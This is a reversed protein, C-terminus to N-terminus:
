IVRFAFFKEYAVGQRLLSSATRNLVAWLEVRDGLRQSEFKCTVEQVLMFIKLLSLPAIPYM